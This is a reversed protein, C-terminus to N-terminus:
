DPRSDKHRTITYERVDRRKRWLKELERERRKKQCEKVKALVHERHEQYYKRQYALKQQHREETM